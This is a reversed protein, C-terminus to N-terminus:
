SARARAPPEVTIEGASVRLLTAKERFDESYTLLNSTTALVQPHSEMLRVLLARRTEDLEAMAEDLLLVPTEGTRNTMFGLEALRLSLAVSRQQGRSGYYQVDSRDVLFQLDDRHPGCLTVGQYIEKTQVQALRRRLLDPLQALPAEDADELSPRYVVALEEDPGALDAYAERAFDGLLGLMARRAAIIEVGAAVLRDDWFELLTAPDPRGRLRQLLSNRQVVIRGYEQLLHLYRHDVQCLALDMFRRRASPSGTVLAVDDPSFLVAKICGVIDTARKPSGNLRFQKRLPPEGGGARSPQEAIAMDVRVSGGNVQAHAELRAYRPVTEEVSDWSILERDTRTRFSKTTALVFIAELVNTKGAGNPGTLLTVGPSLRLDLHEYTRFNRLRLRNLLM